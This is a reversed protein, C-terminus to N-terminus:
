HQGAPRSLPESNYSALQTASATLPATGGLSIRTLLYLCGQVMKKQEGVDRPFCAMFPLVVNPHTLHPRGVIVIRHLPHFVAFPLHVHVLNGPSLGVHVICSRKRLPPGMPLPPEM